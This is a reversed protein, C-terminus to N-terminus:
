RQAPPPTSPGALRTLAADRVAVVVDFVPAIVAGIVAAVEAPMPVEPVSANWVWAVLVGSGVSAGTVSLRPAVATM